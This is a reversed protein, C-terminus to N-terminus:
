TGMREGLRRERTGVLVVLLVRERVAFVTNKAM